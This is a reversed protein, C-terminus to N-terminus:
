QKGNYEAQATKKLLIRTKHGSIAKFANAKCFVPVFNVKGKGNLRTNEGTRASFLKM